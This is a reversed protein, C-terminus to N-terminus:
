QLKVGGGARWTSTMEVSGAWLRLSAKRWFNELVGERTLPKVLRYAMALAPQPDATGTRGSPQALKEARPALHM